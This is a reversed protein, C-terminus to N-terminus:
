IRLADAVPRRSSARAPLAALVATVSTTGAVALVVQWVPVQATADDSLLGFLAFGAPVGVLAGVLAPIVQAASLGVAVQRATAGFARALATTHRADLVTAWTSFVANVAAEAVLMVVIVLLVHGLRESRPDPANSLGSTRLQGNAALATVIGAVSIGASGAALLARRPRRAALRTGLLLSVPLRASLQMAWGVRRPARATSRLAAVTSTRSARLAPLLTALAAVGIAVLGVGAMTAAGFPVSGTEGLLGASPQALTPVISRGLLLGAAAAGTALLVYEALLVSAILSPTAGAAKLLGVRRVQEAMRGGVLVTISSLAMLTLLTSGILLARRENRITRAGTAAVDAATQVFPPPAQSASIRGPPALSTLARDVFAWASAPHALRYSAFYAPSRDLSLTTARDLWVLGPHETRGREGTVNFPYPPMAATVAIGVVRETRAGLEITDGVHIGLADAFGREVVAGEAPAWRGQTVAPRDVPAPATGRGEVLAVARYSGASLVVHALPYPGSRAVVDRSRGLAALARLDAPRRGLLPPDAEATVDPGRTAARTDEYPHDSVNRLVLGVTLMAMAAVFALALLAAEAPRRRLDRAALRAVIAM